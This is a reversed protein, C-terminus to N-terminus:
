WNGLTTETSEYQVIKDVVNRAERSNIVPLRGVGISLRLDGQNTEEWVGEGFNIFGFYDDSSYTTLPNLSSRSSYTPVLNPRGGLKNKYDYTGKGLFLVNKLQNGRHYHFALFNRIA